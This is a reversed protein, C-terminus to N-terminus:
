DSLNMKVNQFDATVRKVKEPPLEAPPALSKLVKECESKTAGEIQSLIEKKAALDKIEENKFLQSVLSLNTMSLSGDEIKKGIEPIDRLIRASNIRRNASPESYGLEKVAYEFLSSYGLDSYLRRREIEKLHHLVKLSIERENAVLIRTDTLLVKDTLHKLNM